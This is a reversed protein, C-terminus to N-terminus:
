VTAFQCVRVCVLNCCISARCLIMLLICICRMYRMLSLYLPFRCIMCILCSNCPFTTHQARKTNSLNHKVRCPFRQTHKKKTKAKKKDECCHFFLVHFSVIVALQICAAKVFRKYITCRTFFSSREVILFVSHRFVYFFCNWWMYPVSKRIPVKFINYITM